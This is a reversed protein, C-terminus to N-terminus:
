QLDPPCLCLSTSGFLKQVFSWFYIFFHTGLVLTVGTGLHLPPGSHTTVQLKEEPIFIFKAVFECLNYSGAFYDLPCEADKDCRVLYAPIMWPWCPFHAM